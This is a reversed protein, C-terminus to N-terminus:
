AVNSLKLLLSIRDKSGTKRLISAVHAKVTRETIELKRAIEKNTFGSKLCDLVDTERETLQFQTEPRTLNLTEVSAPQKATLYQQLLLRTISPGAWIDGGQVVNLLEQWISDTVYTNIYGKIGAELCRLGELDNPVDSFAIWKVNPYVDLVRSVDGAEISSLHMLGIGEVSTETSSKKVNISIREHNLQRSTAFASWREVVSCNDGIIYLNM